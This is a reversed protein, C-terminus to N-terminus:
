LANESQAPTTLTPPVAFFIAAFRKDLQSLRNRAIGQPITGHRIWDRVTVPTVGIEQAFSACSHGCELLWDRLGHCWEGQPWNKLSCHERFFRPEILSVSSPLSLIECERLRRPRPPVVRVEAAQVRLLGRPDAGLMAPCFRFWEGRIHYESFARHMAAEEAHAGPWTRLLALTEYHGCQFDRMRNEPNNAHGIKAPGSEGARILYVPM